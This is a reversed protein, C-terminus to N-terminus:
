VTRSGRCSWGSGSADREDWWLGLFIRGYTADMEEYLGSEGFLGDFWMASGCVSRSVKRQLWDIWSTQLEDPLCPDARPVFDEFAWRVNSLSDAQQPYTLATIRGAPPAQAALGGPGLAPIGALLLFTASRRLRTV